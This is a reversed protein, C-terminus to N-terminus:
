RIIDNQPNNNFKVNNELVVEHEHTYQFGLYLSLAVELCAEYFFM